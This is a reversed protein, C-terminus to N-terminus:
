GFRMDRYPWLLAAFGHPMEDTSTGVVATERNGYWHAALMLVAIQPSTPPTSYEAGFEEGSEEGDPYSASYRATVGHRYMSHPWYEGWRPALTPFDGQYIQRDADAVIVTQGDYDRHTVSEVTLISGPPSPLHVRGDRRITEETAEYTGPLLPRRCFVEAQNIAGLVYTEILSDEETHLVRMHDRALELSVLSEMQPQGLRRWSSM